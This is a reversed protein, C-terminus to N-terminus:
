WTSGPAKCTHHELCTDYCCKEYGPCRSDNSCQNPPRFGSRVPPCQPRVPPCKGPKVFPQSVPDNGDECCYAQNQPTKCWYRCSKSGGGGGGHGGVVGVGGVVGGGHGVGVGAILGGAGTGVGVVGIGGGGSGHHRTDAALSAAAFLSVVFPVVLPVRRCTMTESTRIQKHVCKRADSYIYGLLREPSSELFNRVFLVIYLESGKVSHEGQRDKIGKEEDEEM